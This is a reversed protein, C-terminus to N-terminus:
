GKLNRRRTVSFYWNKLDTALSRKSLRSQKYDTLFHLDYKQTPYSTAHLKHIQISINFINFVTFLHAGKWIRCQTIQVGMGPSGLHELLPFLSVRRRAFIDSCSSGGSPPCPLSSKIIVQYFFSYLVDVHSFFFFFFFFSINFIFYISYM